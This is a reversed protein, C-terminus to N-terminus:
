PQDDEAPRAVTLETLDILRELGIPLPVSEVIVEVSIGATERSERTTRTRPVFGKLVVPQATLGGLARPGPTITRPDAEAAPKEVTTETVDYTFAVKAHSVTLTPIAVMALLPVELAFEAPEQNEDLKTYRITVTRFHEDGDTGRVLGIQEVLALSSATAERQGGVVASLLAGLLQDLGLTNLDRIPM